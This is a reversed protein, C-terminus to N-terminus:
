YTIIYINMLYLLVIVWFLPFWCRRSSSQLYPAVNDQSKRSYKCKIGSIELAVLYSWVCPPVPACVTRRSTTIGAPCLDSYILAQSIDSSLLSAGSLSASRVRKLYHLQMNGFTSPMVAWCPLLISSPLNIRNQGKKKVEKGKREITDGGTIWWVPNPLNHDKICAFPVAERAEARQSRKDQLWLTWSVNHGQTPCKALKRINITQPYIARRATNQCLCYNQRFAIANTFAARQHESWVIFVYIVGERPARGAYGSGGSFNRSSSPSQSCSCPYVANM